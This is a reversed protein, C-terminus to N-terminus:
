NLVYLFNFVVSLPLETIIFFVLMCAYKEM